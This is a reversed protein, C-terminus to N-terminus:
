SEKKELFIKRTVFNYIMVVATAFIKAAATVVDENTFINRFWTWQVYLVDLSLYILLENIGLGIVSLAVFIVFEKKKDMDERREFVFKMSAIYNFIVSIVFGFFAGVVAARSMDMGAGRLVKAVVMTIIFDIGFSIVGVIGFKVLQEILKKM